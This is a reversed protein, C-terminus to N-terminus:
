KEMAQFLSNNKKGLILCGDFWPQDKKGIINVIKKWVFFYYYVFLVLAGCAPAFM